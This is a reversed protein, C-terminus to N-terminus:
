TPDLQFKSCATTLLFNRMYRNMICIICSGIIAIPRRGMRRLYGVIPLIENQAPKIQPKGSSAIPHAIETMQFSVLSQSRWDQVNCSSASRLQCMFYAHLRATTTGNLRTRTTTMCTFSGLM